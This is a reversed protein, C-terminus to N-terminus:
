ATRLPSTVQDEASLLQEFGPPLPIEFSVIAGRGRESDVTLIGGLHAVREEIGLIGIGKEQSPDFGKGDDQVSVRLSRSKRQVYIRVQRAGSHRSANRVAEQVVRYVCTRHEEPLDDPCDEAAVDVQLGSTRSVERALWKLAPMLGLDDLMSPRLLLAINRVMRANQETMNQMLQLQRLAEGTNNGELSSRLNGLALMMASLVQGVEDHLERSIRRREVEQASVLEASLQKLEERTHLVERFRTVSEDELRLLRWLTLGALLIGIAVTLLLLAVLKTRFSSFLDSVARSSIELQKESVQQIRDALGVAMMRRPLVEEEIFSYGKDRRQKPTWSLAPTLTAFYTALEASLQEFAEREEPRALRRYEYVGSQIKHQTELFQDKRHAALTEATDLLFDRIYTGSLFIQSRLRELIRDREVYDQRIREQRIEIQYLFSIASLGLVCMLLLLGGFGGWLLIRTQRHPPNQPSKM